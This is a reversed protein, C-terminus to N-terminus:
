TTITLPPWGTFYFCTFDEGAAVFLSVNRGITQTDSRPVIHSELYQTYAFFKADAMDRTKGAIFKYESYFPIEVELTPNVDSASMAAGYYTTRSVGNKFALAKAPDTIATVESAFFGVPSSIDRRSLFVETEDGVAYTANWRIAGKWASFASILYAIYSYGVVNPTGPGLPVGGNHGFPEPFGPHTFNFSYASGGYPIYTYGIYRKILMRFSDVVEGIYVKSQKAPMNMEHGQTVLTTDVEDTSSEPVINISVDTLQEGPNALQFNDGARVYVAVEILNGITPDASPTTLENLVFVSLVGNSGESNTLRTTGFEDQTLWNNDLELWQRDQFNNITLEFDRNKSIDVIETYSVNDERIQPANNPDYTIALRGKHYASSIVQFRFILSGTWYSFPVSAGCMATMYRVDGNSAALNPTVKVNWLFDEPFQDTSWSFNTLYSDTGAIRNIALEDVGTLGVTTPDISLEQKVDLSLKISTDSTNTAALGGIPRPLYREPERVDVPRCYGLASAVSSAVRAGKEVATAYKGIIPVKAVYSAADAVATAAQSVPKNTTEEERGSQPTVGQLNAHTPGELEVDEFWAYVSISVQNGSAAIDQNAHRLTAVQYM